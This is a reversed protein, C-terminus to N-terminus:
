KKLKWSKLEEFSEFATLNTKVPMISVYDHQVAWEDTDRKKDVRVMEGDMWFYARGSPDFRENLEEKWYNDAQRTIKYGKIRDKSINPINVNLCVHKPLGNELVKPVIQKVAEEAAEFDCDSTYNAVSFAVANIGSLCGEMAAAVTASYITSASTNSGQNIGSVLLDVKENKLIYRNAIKVSDVSTGNTKYIQLDPCEYVKRVRLPQGFTIAHSMGSRGMSPGVVIVRGFDKVADILKKIGKADVGDDNTVLILPQKRKKM